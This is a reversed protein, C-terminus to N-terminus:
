KKNSDLYAKIVVIGIIIVIGWFLIKLEDNDKVMMNFVDGLSQQMSTGIAIVVFLAFNWIIAFWGWGAGQEPKDEYWIKTIEKIQESAFIDRSIGRLTNEASSDSIIIKTNQASLSMYEWFGLKLNKYKSKFDSYFIYYTICYALVGLFFNLWQDIYWLYNLNRIVLLGIGFVIGAIIFTTTDTWKNQANLALWLVFGVLFALIVGFLVYNFM